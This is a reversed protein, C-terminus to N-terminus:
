KGSAKAAKRHTLAKSASASNSDVSAESLEAATRGKLEKSARWVASHISVMSAAVLPSSSSAAAPNDASAISPACAAVLINIGMTLDYCAAPPFSGWGRERGGSREPRESGGGGGSFLRAPGRSCRSAIIARPTHTPGVAGRAGGGDPM